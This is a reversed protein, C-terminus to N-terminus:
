AYNCEYICIVCLFPTIVNLNGFIIKINIKFQVSNCGNFYNWFSFFSIDAKTASALLALASIDARAKHRKVIQM